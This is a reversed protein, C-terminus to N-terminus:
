VKALEAEVCELRVAVDVLRDLKNHTNAKMERRHKRRKEPAADFEDDAAEHDVGGECPNSAFGGSSAANAFFDPDNQKRWEYRNDEMMQTVFRDRDKPEFLIPWLLWLGM